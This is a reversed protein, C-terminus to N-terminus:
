HSTQMYWEHVLRSIEEISLSGQEVWSEVEPIVAMVIEDESLIPRKDILGSKVLRNELEEVDAVTLHQTRRDQRERLVSLLRRIDGKMEELLSNLSKLHPESLGTAAWASAEAKQHRGIQWNRSFAGMLDVRALLREVKHRSIIRDGAGDGLAQWQGVTEVPAKLLAYLTGLDDRLLYFLHVDGLSRSFDLSPVRLLAGYKDASRGEPSPIERLAPRTVKKIPSTSKAMGRIQGLDIPAEQEMGKKMLTQSWRLADSPNATLYVIQREEEAALVSLSEVIAQFRSPDSTTLVDDLFIPLKIGREIQGAFALRVALLLQIRTGDSLESLGKGIQTFVEFVRFSPPDSREDVILSYKHHTFKAFLEAASRLVKPCSQKDHQARVRELLFKGAVKQLNEQRREELLQEGESLDALAQEVNDKKGAHQISAEISGIEGMVDGLKAVSQECTGVRSDAEKFTLELLDQRSKLKQEYDRINQEHHNAENGLNRYEDLWDLYQYLARQDGVQLGTKKWFGRIQEEQEGIEAEVKDRRVSERELIGRTSELRASRVKLDELRGRAAATDQVEPEGQGKFFTNLDELGEQVREELRSLQAELGALEERAEEWKLIRNAFLFLQLDSGPDVQLQLCLKARKEDVQLEKQALRGERAKLEDLLTKRRELEVAEKWKEELQKLQSDVSEPSWDPIPKLRLKDYQRQCQQAALDRNREFLFIVGLIGIGVGALVFGSWHAFWGLELGLILAIAGLWSFNRIVKHGTSHAKRARWNRLIEMGWELTAKSKGEQDEQLYNRDTDIRIREQRVAEVESLFGELDSLLERDLPTLGQPAHEPALHEVSEALAGQAATVQDRQEEVKIEVSQLSGAREVWTSLEGDGIPGHPLRCSQIVTGAAQIAKECDSLQSRLQAYHTKIAELDKREHGQLQGMEKPFEALAARIQRLHLREKALDRTTKLLDLEAQSTHIKDREAYAAPLRDEERALHRQARQIDAVRKRLDRVIRREAQGNKSRIAFQEGITTLDYGGSMQHYIETAIEADTSSGNDLLLDGLGLTFCRAFREAPLRPPPTEKGDRQWVASSKERTATLTEDVETWQSEISIHEDTETGPWLIARIARCLTTKGSENPGVLLNLHSSYPQVSFPEKVGPMRRVTVKRLEM